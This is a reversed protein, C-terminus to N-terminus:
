ARRTSSWTSPWAALRGGGGYGRLLRQEVLDLAVEGSQDRGLLRAAVRRGRLARRAVGAATELRLRCAAPRDVGRRGVRRARARHGLRLALEALRVM